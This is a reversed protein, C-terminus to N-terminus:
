SEEIRKSTISTFVGDTDVKIDIVQYTVIIIEGNDKIQEQEYIDGIKM